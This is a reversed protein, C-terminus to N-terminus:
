DHLVLPEDSDDMQHHHQLFAQVLRASIDGAHQRTNNLVIVCLDDAPRIVFSSTFGNWNGNHYYLWQNNSNRLRLGFGYNIEQGRSNRSKTIAEQWTAGSVLSQSFLARYWKLLDDTTSYIGKDGLVGDCVDAGYERSNRGSGAFGKAVDLSDKPFSKDFTSTHLMKLPNFIRNQVFTGFDIGSIQEVLLALMVYGTNSYLYRSGPTAYLRLSQEKMISIIDRSTLPKKNDWYREVFFTYKPLGSTHHLLQRITIDPYPFEPIYSKLPKDYDVKGEEKLMMIAMATFMKSVSALQFMTQSTIPTKKRIDSYGQIHRYIVQGKWAVLISGNLGFRRVVPSFLEDYEKLVSDPAPLLIKQNNASLIKELTGNQDSSFPTGCQTLFFMGAVLIALYAPINKQFPQFMM